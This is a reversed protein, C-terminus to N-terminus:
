SQLEFKIELDHTVNIHIIWFRLDKINTICPTVVDSIILYKHHEGDECFEMVGNWSITLGWTGEAEAKERTLDLSLIEGGKMGEVDAPILCISWYNIKIESKLM